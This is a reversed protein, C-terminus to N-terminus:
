PDKADATASLLLNVGAFINLTVREIPLLPDKMMLHNGGPALHVTEGPQIAIEPLARMRAIGKTTMTAHMEVAEFQPSQFSTIRIQTESNNTLALYGASM